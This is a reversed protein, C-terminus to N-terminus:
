SCGLIENTTKTLKILLSLEEVELVSIELELDKAKEIILQKEDQDTEQYYLHLQKIFDARTTTLKDRVTILKSM